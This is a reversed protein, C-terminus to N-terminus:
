FEARVGISPLVVRYSKESVEGPGFVDLAYVQPTLTANVLEAYLDLQVRDFYVQRDIRLDLQYFPPLRMVQEQPVTAGGLFYTYPRGTNYHVRAGVTTRKWRYGLVLNLVHRQDWDSPGVAGGGYSRLNNSLTYSLWGYLRQTAPRRVLLELGYSLADRVVLFDSALPDPSSPSPDRLDTLRYRQYYATATLELGAVHTTEVGVSGQWSSQLGLAALGFGDAGPIQLPLSPLQTFRGGALRIATDDRVGVRAALRPGLDQAHAGAVDYSDFRLEPTLEVRRHLRLTASAYGALLTAVRRRGLDSTDQPQLNGLVLPEYRSIDGDFGVAVDAVGFSRLLAARPAVTLTGVTIPYVDLIPAKTRDSGVAVSGQLRGGAVPLSARLSLRHFDIQLEDISPTGASTTTPALLDHSGFAMLTLQVPGVRRDVRLQYDWYALRLEPDFYSVLAGTYSYRAAVAVGGNGPLPASVMAGADFLRVDVSAHVRDTAAARTDAAVLGAVYRGFQAPYGGPYFQLSDFFYPHIVSPGLALHFLAPVRVNDLFFGTNGPNSGRVAYIPAPWAITAVGPLSELARLPDGMTGATQTLEEKALRLAPHVPKARVVTEHRAGSHDPTLRWILPASDAACVDVDAALPEFGAALVTVRAHGCPLAVDFEGRANTEGLPAADSAVSAGVVPAQTGKALLRGVVRGTAPATAGPPAADTPRAPTADAAADARGADAGADASWADALLLLALLPGAGIM